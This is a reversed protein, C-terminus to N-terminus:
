DLEVQETKRARILNQFIFLEKFLGLTLRNAVGSWGNGIGTAQIDEIEFGSRILMQLISRRTFFRLHTSDLVGEQQYRFDGYILLPFMVSFHRINPVSIVLHGGPRLVRRIEGLARWPDVLHELIDLALVTDFHGEPHPFNMKDIDGVLVEDVNQRTIKAIEPHGEVACVWGFRGSRKLAGSTTAIGSGLDLARASYAPLLPVIEDRSEDYYRQPKPTQYTAGYRTRTQGSSRGVDWSNDSESKAM